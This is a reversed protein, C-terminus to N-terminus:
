VADKMEKVVLGCIQLYKPAVEVNYAGCTHCAALKIRCAWLETTMQSAEYKRARQRGHM